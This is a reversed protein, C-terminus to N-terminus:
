RLLSDLMFREPQLEGDVFVCSPETSRTSLPWAIPRLRAVKVGGEAIALSDIPFPLTIKLRWRGQKALHMREIHLGAVATPNSVDVKWKQLQRGQGRVYLDFHSSAGRPSLPKADARWDLFLVDDGAMVGREFFDCPSDTLGRTDQKWGFSSPLRIRSVARVFPKEAAPAILEATDALYLHDAGDRAQVWLLWEGESAAVGKVAFGAHSFSSLVKGDASSVFTLAREFNLAIVPEVPHVTLQERLPTGQLTTEGLPKKGLRCGTAECKVAPPLPIDPCADEGFGETAGTQVDVTWRICPTQASWRTWVSVTHADPSLAVAAITSPEAFAKFKHLPVDVLQSTILLLVSTLM